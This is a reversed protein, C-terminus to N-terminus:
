RPGRPIPPPSIKDAGIRLRSRVGTPDDFGFRESSIKGGRFTKTESNIYSGWIRVIMGAEINDSFFRKDMKVVIDETNGGILRVVLKGSQEDASIVTGLLVDESFAKLPPSLTLLITILIVLGYRM